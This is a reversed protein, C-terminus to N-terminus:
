RPRVHFVVIKTLWVQEIRILYSNSAINGRSIILTIRIFIPIFIQDNYMYIQNALADCM